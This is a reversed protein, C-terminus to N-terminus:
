GDTDSLIVDNSTTKLREVQFYFPYKLFLFFLCEVGESRLQRHYCQQRGDSIFFVSSFVGVLKVEQERFGSCWRFVQEFALDFM